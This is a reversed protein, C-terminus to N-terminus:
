CLYAAMPAGDRTEVVLRSIEQRDARVKELKTAIEGCRKFGEDLALQGENAVSKVKSRRLDITEASTFDADILECDAKVSKLLLEQLLRDDSLRKSIQELRPALIKSNDPYVSCMYWNVLRVENCLTLVGALRSLEQHKNYASLYEGECGVTDRELARGAERRLQEVLTMGARDLEVDFREMESRTRELFEGCEVAKRAVDLYNMASRIVAFREEELMSQVGEVKSEVRKLSASIDALHKQAVVVSAIQWIAAANAVNQLNNPEYLKAHEFGKGAKAIARLGNGDSAALMQGNIVVEMLKGSNAMAATGVSPAAQLLPEILSRLPGSVAQGPLKTARQLQKTAADADMLVTMSMVERDGDTVVVQTPAVHSVSTAEPAPISAENKKQVLAQQEPAEVAQKNGTTTGESTASRKMWVIALGVGVVLSVLSAFLVEM